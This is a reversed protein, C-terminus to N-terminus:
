KFDFNPSRANRSYYASFLDALERHLWEKKHLDRHSNFVGVPYETVDKNVAGRVPRGTTSVRWNRQFYNIHLGVNQVKSFPGLEHGPIGIRGGSERYIKSIVGTEIDAPDITVLLDVERGKQNVRSAKLATEMATIGGRSYGFVIIPEDCARAIQSTAAHIDGVRLPLIPDNIGLSDLIPQVGRKIVEAGGNDNLDNVWGEGRVDEFHIGGGFGLILLGSPDIRVLPSNGVYLYRNLGDPGGAPDRKM